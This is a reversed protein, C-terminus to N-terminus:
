NRGDANRIVFPAAGGCLIVVVDDAKAYDPVMGFSGRKTVCTTWGQVNVRLMDEFSRTLNVPAEM